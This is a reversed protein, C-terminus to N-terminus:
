IFNLYKSVWFLVEALVTIAGAEDTIVLATGSAGLRAALAAPEEPIVAGTPRFTYRVREPGTPYNM